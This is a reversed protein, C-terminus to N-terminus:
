NSGAARIVLGSSGFSFLEIRAFLDEDIRRGRTRLSGTEACNCCRDSPLPVPERELALGQTAYELVDISMGGLGDLHIIGGQAIEHQSACQHAVIDPTPQRAQLTDKGDLDDLSLASYDNSLALDNLPVPRGLACRELGLAANM